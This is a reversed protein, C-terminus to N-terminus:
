RKTRLLVVIAAGVTLGAGLIVVVDLVLESMGEEIRDV